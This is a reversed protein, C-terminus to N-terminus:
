GHYSNKIKNNIHIPTKIKILSKREVLKPRYKLADPSFSVKTLFKFCLGLFNIIVPNIIDLAKIANDPQRKVCYTPNLSIPFPFPINTEISVAIIIPSFIILGVVKFRKIIEEKKPAIM